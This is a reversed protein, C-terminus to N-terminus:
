EGEYIPIQADSDTRQGGGGPPPSGDPWEVTCQAVPLTLCSRAARQAGVRCLWHLVHVLPVRRRGSCLHLLQAAPVRSRTCSPTAVMLVPWLAVLADRTNLCWRETCTTPAVVTHADGKRLNTAEETDSDSLLEDYDVFHAHLAGASPGRPAPSASSPTQHSAGLNNMWAGATKSLPREEHASVSVFSGDDDDDNAAAWSDRKHASARAHEHGAGARSLRAYQSNRSARSHRSVYDGTLRSEVVIDLDAPRCQIAISTTAIPARTDRQGHPAALPIEEVTQGLTTASPAGDFMRSALRNIVSDRPRPLENPSPMHGSSPVAALAGNGCTVQQRPQLGHPADSAACSKTTLIKQEGAARRPTLYRLMHGRGDSSSSFAGICADLGAHRCCLRVGCTESFCSRCPMVCWLWM